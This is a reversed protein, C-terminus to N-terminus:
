RINKEEMTGTWSYKDRGGIVGIEGVRRGGGSGGGVGRSPWNGGTVVVVYWIEGPSRESGECLDLLPQTAIYQAVTNQHHRAYEQM